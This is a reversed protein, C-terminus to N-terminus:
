PERVQWSGPFPLPGRLRAPRFRRRLRARGEPKRSGVSRRWRRQLPGALGSQFAVWEGDPSLFPGLAVGPGRLTLSELEDLARIALEPSPNLASQYVINQGDPSIAVDPHTATTVVPLGPAASIVQRSVPRPAPAADPRLTSWGFGLALVLALVSTAMSLPNWLGRDARVGTSVEVGHRFASDALATAFDHASTFRDAPLKELAKRIVADVNAPVSAREETASM